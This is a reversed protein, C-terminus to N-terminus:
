VHARGIEFQDNAKALRFPLSRYLVPIYDAVWQGQPTVLLNQGPLFGQVVVLNYSTDNKVLGLPLSLMAKPIESFGIAVFRDRAAFRFDTPKFWRKNAHENASIARIETM